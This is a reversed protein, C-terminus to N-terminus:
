TLLPHYLPTVSEQESSDCGISGTQSIDLEDCSVYATSDTFPSADASHSSGSSSHPSGTSLFAAAYPSLPAYLMSRPYSLAQQYESPDTHKYEVESIDPFM